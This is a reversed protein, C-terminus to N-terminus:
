LANNVGGGLQGGAKINYSELYTSHRNFIILQREIKLAEEAEIYDTLQVAEFNRLGLTKNSRHARLRRDLNCTIGVYVKNKARLEYVCRKFLNGVPRMHECVEDLCGERCAARYASANGKKFKTRASYKLAEERIRIKSWTEKLPQMHTCIEDLFGQNLARNYAYKSGKQFEFRTPYKLAEKAIRVRTWSNPKNM